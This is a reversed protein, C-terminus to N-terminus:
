REIIFSVCQVNQPLDCIERTNDWHLGPACSSVRPFGDVCIVYDECNDPHPHFELDVPGCTVDVNDIRCDVFEPYRCMQTAVDFYFSAPCTGEVAAENQCFIWHQCSRPSSVFLGNPIGACFRDFNDAQSVSALAM